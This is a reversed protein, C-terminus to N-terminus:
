DPRSVYRLVIPKESEIEVDDFRSLLACVFASRKVNMKNLLEDQSLRGRCRLRGWGVDVMWAPVLQPGRGMKRSRLTEVLVGDREIGAIWNPRSIGLTTIAEGVPAAQRVRELLDDDFANDTAM